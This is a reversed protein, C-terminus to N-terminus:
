PRPLRHFSLGAGNAKQVTEAPQATCSRDGVARRRFDALVDENVPPGTARVWGNDAFCQFSSSPREDIVPSIDSSRVVLNGHGHPGLKSQVGSVSGSGSRRVDGKTDVGGRPIRRKSERTEKSGRFREM